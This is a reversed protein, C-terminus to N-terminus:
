DRKKGAWRSKRVPVQYGQSHIELMLHWLLDRESRGSQAALFSLEEIGGEALCHLIDGLGTAAPSASHSVVPTQSALTIGSPSQAATLSASLAQLIAPNLGAAHLLPASNLRGTHQLPASNSGGTHLLPASNLGGTHQLPVSSNVIDTHLPARSNLSEAHLDLNLLGRLQLLNVILTFLTQIVKKLFIGCLFGMLLWGYSVALPAFGHSYYSPADGSCALATHAIAEKCDAPLVRFAHYGSSGLSFIWQAGSLFSAWVM